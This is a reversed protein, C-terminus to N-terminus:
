LLRPFLAVGGLPRGSAVSFDGIAALVGADAGLDAVGVIGNM